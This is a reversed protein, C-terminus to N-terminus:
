ACGEKAGTLGHARLGDLLMALTGDDVQVREGNVVFEIKSAARESM